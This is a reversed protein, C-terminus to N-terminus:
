GTGGTSNIKKLKKPFYCPDFKWMDYWGQLREPLIDHKVMFRKATSEPLDIGTIIGAGDPTIVRDGIKM